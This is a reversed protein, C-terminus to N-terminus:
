VVRGASFFVVGLWIHQYCIALLGILAIPLTMWTYSNPSFPLNAFLRGLQQSIIAWTQSKEKIM